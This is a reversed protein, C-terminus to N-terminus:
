NMQKIYSSRKRTPAHVSFVRFPRRRRNLRIPDDFEAGVVWGEFGPLELPRFECGRIFVASGWRNNVSYWVFRNQNIRYKEPVELKPDRTEQALVIDPTFDALIKSWQNQEGRKGGSRFNYAVIRM